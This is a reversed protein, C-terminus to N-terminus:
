FLTGDSKIKIPPSCTDPRLLKAVIRGAKWTGGELMKPLSFEEASLDLRERLIPALRDLLCITLARWQIIIEDDPNYEVNESISEIPIIVKLDVFLGGNRYEALGTMQEKKLFKLNLFMEIPEILSYTLWQSLKHFTVLSDQDKSNLILIKSPWVDGLCVDEIKLRGEVPWVGGFGEIVVQWLKEIEVQNGQSNQLLFYILNGPRYSSDHPNYFFRQNIPNKLVKGLRKLLELRGDLGILPNNEIDVQLGKSLTEMKLNMLADADVRFGLYFLFLDYFIM